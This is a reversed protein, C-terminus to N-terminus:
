ARATVVIDVGTSIFSYKYLCLLVCLAFYGYGASAIMLTLVFCLIWVTHKHQLHLLECVGQLPLTNRALLLPLVIFFIPAQGLSYLIQCVLHSNGGESAGDAHTFVGGCTRGHACDHGRVYCTCSGSIVSALSPSSPQKQSHSCLQLSHSCLQLSSSIMLLSSGGAPRGMHVNM